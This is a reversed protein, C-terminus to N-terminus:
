YIGINTMSTTATVYVITNYMTIMTSHVVYRETTKQITSNTTM